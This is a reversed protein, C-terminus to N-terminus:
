FRFAPSCASAACVIDQLRKVFLGIAPIPEERLTLLPINGIMEFDIPGPEFGFLDPIARVDLHNRRAEWIALRANDRQNPLALVIEDVFQTRAIRSQDRIRGLVDGAIPQDEDLFGLLRYPTSKNSRLSQALARGTRTSGVILLNRINTTQPRDTRLRATALRWLMMLVFVAPLSAAFLAIPYTGIRLLSALLGSWVLCKVLMSALKRVDSQVETDYLRESYAFLTFWAGFALASHLASFWSFNTASRGLLASLRLLGTTTLLITLIDAAVSQVVHLRQRRSAPAPLLLDCWAIKKEAIETIPERWFRGDIASSVTKKRGNLGGGGPILRSPLVGPPQADIEAVSSPSTEPRNLNITGM